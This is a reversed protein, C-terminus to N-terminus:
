NETGHTLNLM